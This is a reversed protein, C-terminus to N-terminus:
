VAPGSKARAAAEVNNLYQRWFEIAERCVDLATRGGYVVSRMFSEYTTPGSPGAQGQGSFTMDGTGPSMTTNLRAGVEYAKLVNNREQEIFEWFIRPEPKTKKLESWAEAVAQKLEASQEADIKELVHGVSRLSGVLATWRTRWYPTPGAAQFDALALECDSLVDRARIM